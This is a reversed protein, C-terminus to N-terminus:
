LYGYYCVMETTLTSTREPVTKDDVAMGVGIMKGPEPAAVVLQTSGLGGTIYSPRCSLALKSPGEM